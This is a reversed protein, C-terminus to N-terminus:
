RSTSCQSGLGPPHETGYGVPVSSAPSGNGGPDMYLDRLHRRASAIHEFHGRADVGAKSAWSDDFPPLILSLVDDADVRRRSSSTGRGLPAIQRRVLPHQLLVLAAYPDIDPRFVGFEASCQVPGADIPVVAARFKRPNLLSVLLEGPEALQGPTVPRHAWALDWDIAGLEDVHLVSVFPADGRAGRIRRKGNFQLITRAEIGGADKLSARAVEAEEDLTSADLRTLEVFRRKVVQRSPKWTDPGALFGQIAATIAPLDDGGPDRAPLGKRMVLGVHDARALFVYAKPDAAAKRIFTVSTKATTGAPVFTASPLSIM